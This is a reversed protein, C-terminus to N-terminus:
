RIGEWTREKKPVIGPGREICPLIGGTPDHPRLGQVRKEHPSLTPSSKKSIQTSCIVYLQSSQQDETHKKPDKLNTSIRVEQSADNPLSSLSSKEVLNLARKQSPPLSSLKPIVELFIGNRKTISRPLNKAKYFGESITPLIRTM